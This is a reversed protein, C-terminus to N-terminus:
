AEKYTYTCCDGLCHLDFTDDRVSDRICMKGDPESILGVGDAWTFTGDGSVEWPCLMITNAGSKGVEQALIEM